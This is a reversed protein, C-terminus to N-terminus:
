GAYSYSVEIKDGVELVGDLNYGNWSLTTGSVSYDNGEDQPIGGYVTLKVDADTAPTHTLTVSKSTNIQTSNLTFEDVTFSKGVSGATSLKNGIYVYIVCRASSTLSLDDESTITGNAPDFIWDQAATGYIRTTPYNSYLKPEYNYHISDPVIDYVRQGASSHGTPYKLYYSKGNSTNDYQLECIVEEVVGANVAATTDTSITDVWVNDALTILYSSDGENSPDKSNYTHSKGMLKKLSINIKSTDTLSM